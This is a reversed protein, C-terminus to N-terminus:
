KNNETEEDRQQKEKRKKKEGSKTRFVLKGRRIPGGGKEKEGKIGPNCNFEVLSFSSSNPRKGKKKGGGRKKREM